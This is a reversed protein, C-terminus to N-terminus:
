KVNIKIFYDLAKYSIAGRQHIKFNYFLAVVRWIFFECTRRIASSVQMRYIYGVVSCIYAFSYNICVCVCV